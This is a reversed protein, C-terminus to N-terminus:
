KRILTILFHHNSSVYACEYQPSVRCSRSTHISTKVYHSNSSVYECEYNLAPRQVYRKLFSKNTITRTVRRDYHRPLIAFCTQARVSYVFVESTVHLICANNNKKAFLPNNGYNFQFMQGIFFSLQSLFCIM